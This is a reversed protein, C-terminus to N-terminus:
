ERPPAIERPGVTVVFGRRDIPYRQFYEDLSARDVGDVAALREEVTRPRGRYDVDDMVQLLRYFPSEGEIAVSTRRKNKVRQIEADSIPGAMMGKAEARMAQIVKETNEPDCQAMMILLGCDAYDLRYAGAHPSLGAQEINWYFRSNNGGLISGVAGATENLPEAASPASVCLAVVQQTFRPVIKEAFGEHIAPAVRQPAPEGHPWNGCYREAARIAVDPDVGGAVSLIMNVPTYRRHFYEHMQDRTLPKITREYGLVPWGLSHGEFVKELILDFAVHEIRDNSMAIEELVVNKEMDFEDPPLVSGILDALIELLREFDATRAAGHYFTRDQSTFANPQGGIRDFDLNIEAATRSATGKFCMHELFHSVGALEPSEDRAGTRCLFGAASSKVGEMREIVIRLGNPLVHSVFRNESAIM